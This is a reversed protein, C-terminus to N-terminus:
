KQSYITYQAPEMKFYVQNLNRFHIYPMWTPGFFLDTDSSDFEFTSPNDTLFITKANNHSATLLYSDIGTNWHNLLLKEKDIDGYGMIVKSHPLQNAMTELLQLRTKFQQAAKNIRIFALFSALVITIVIGMNFTKSVFLYCLAMVIMFVSPMFSKEMMMDADGKSFTLTAILVFGFFSIWSFTFLLYQKTTICVGCFSIAILLFPFYTSHLRRVFFQIPYMSGINGLEQISASLNDYQKVDYSGADVMLVRFLTIAITPVILVILNTYNSQKTLLVFVLIFGLVFVAIPHCLLAFVAAVFVGCAQLLKQNNLQQSVAFAYALIAFVIAQHTETVPHFFSYTIGIILTLSIALAAETVKLKICFFAMAVYLLPFSVSYIFILLTLPLQLKVGMLLPIQSFVVGWRNEPFWFTQNNVIQFFSFSNDVNLIRENLFVISLLTYVALLLWSIWIAIQHNNQNM